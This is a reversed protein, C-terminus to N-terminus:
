AENRFGKHLVGYINFAKNARIPFSVAQRWYLGPFKSVYAVRPGPGRAIYCSDRSTGM